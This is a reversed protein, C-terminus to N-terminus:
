CSWIAFYQKIKGFINNVLFDHMSKKFQYIILIIKLQFFIIKINLILALSLFTSSCLSRKNLPSRTFKVPLYFIELYFLFFLSFYIYISFLATKCIAKLFRALLGIKNFPVLTTFSTFATKSLIFDNTCVTRLPSHFPRLFFNLFKM